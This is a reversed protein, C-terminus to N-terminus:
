HILGATTKYNAVSADQQNYMQLAFQAASEVSFKRWFTRVEWSFYAIVYLYFFSTSVIRSLQLSSLKYKNDTPCGICYPFVANYFVLTYVSRLIHVFCSLKQESTNKHHVQKKFILKEIVKDRLFATKNSM